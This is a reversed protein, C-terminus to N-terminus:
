PSRCLCSATRQSHTTQLSVIRPRPKPSGFLDSCRHPVLARCSLLLGGLNEPYSSKRSSTPPKTHNRPSCTRLWLLPRPSSEGLSGWSPLTSRCDRRTWPLPPLHRSSTRPLPPTSSPPSRCNTAPTKPQTRELSASNVRQIKSHVM